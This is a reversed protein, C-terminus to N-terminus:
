EIHLPGSWRALSTLDEVHFALLFCFSGWECWKSCDPYSMIGYIIPYISWRCSCASIHFMRSVVPLAQSSSTTVSVTGKLTVSPRWNNGHERNQNMLSTLLEAGDCMGRDLILLALSWLRLSAFSHTLNYGWKLTKQEMNKDSILPQCQAVFFSM